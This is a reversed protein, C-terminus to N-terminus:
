MSAFSKQLYYSYTMIQFCRSSPPHRHTLNLLNKYFKKSIKKLSDGYRSDNVTKILAHIYMKESKYISNQIQLNHTNLHTSWDTSNGYKIQRRSFAMFFDFYDESISSTGNLVEELDYWYSGYQIMPSVPSRVQQFKYKRRRVVIKWADKEERQTLGSFLIRLPNEYGFQRVTFRVLDNDHSCLDEEEVM